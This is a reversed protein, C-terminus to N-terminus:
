EYEVIRFKTENRIFTKTITANVAEEKELDYAIVNQGEKLDEINILSGDALTVSTNELFCGAAPTRAIGVSATDLEEQVKNAVRFEEPKMTIAFNKANKLTRIQGVQRYGFVSASGSGVVSLVNMALPLYEQQTNVIKGEALDTVQTALLPVSVAVDVVGITTGLVVLVAAPIGVPAYVAAVGIIMLSGGTYMQYKQFQEKLIPTKYCAMDIKQTNSFASLGSNSTDSITDVLLSSALVKEVGTDVNMDFPVRGVGLEKATGSEYDKNCDVDFGYYCSSEGKPALPHVNWASFDQGALGKGVWGLSPMTQVRVKESSGSLRDSVYQGGDDGLSDDCDPYVSSIFYGEEKAKTYNCVVIKRGDASKELLSGRLNEKVNGGLSSILDEYSLVVGGTQTLEEVVEAPCGCFGDRDDDSCYYNGTIKSKKYDGVLYRPPVGRYGNTALSKYDVFKCSPADMDILKVPVPVEKEIKTTVSEATDANKVLENFQPIFWKYPVSGVLNNYGENNVGDACKDKAVCAEQWQWKETNSSEQTKMLDGLTCEKCNSKCASSSKKSLMLTSCTISNPGRLVGNVNTFGIKIKKWEEFPVGYLEGRMSDIFSNPLDTTGRSKSEGELNIINKIAIDELYVLKKEGHAYNVKYDAQMEKGAGGPIFNVEVGGDSFQPAPQKYRGTLVARNYGNCSPVDDVMQCFNDDQNFSNHVEGCGAMVLPDASVVVSTKNNMGDGIYGDGNWQNTEENWTAQKVMCTRAVDGQCTGGCNNDIDDVEETQGPHRCFAVDANDGVGDNDTDNFCLQRAYLDKDSITDDKLAKAWKATVSADRENDYPWDDCDSKEDEKKVGDLDYDLWPTNKSSEVPELDAVRITMNIQCFVSESNYNLQKGFGNGNSVPIEVAFSEFNQPTLSYTPMSNVELVEGSYSILSFKADVTGYKDEEKLQAAEVLNITIKGGCKVKIGEIWEDGLEGTIEEKSYSAFSAAINDSVCNPEYTPDLNRRHSICEISCEDPCCPDCYCGCMGSFANTNACDCQCENDKEPPICGTGWFDPWDVIGSFWPDGEYFGEYYRSSVNSPDCWESGNVKGDGCYGNFDISHESFGDVGFSVENGIISVNPKTYIIKGDKRITVESPSKGIAEDTYFTLRALSPLEPENGEVSFSRMIPSLDSNIFISKDSIKVSDKMSKGEWDINVLFEVKGFAKEVSFKSNSFNFSVDPLEKGESSFNYESFNYFKNNYSSLMTLGIYSASIKINSFTNDFVSNLVIGNMNDSFVFKDFVSHAVNELYLGNLSFDRITGNKVILSNKGIASIGSYPQNNGQINKGNLDFIVNDSTIEFCNGSDAVVDNQLLYYASADNLEQCGFIKEVNRREGNKCIQKGDDINQSNSNGCSGGLGLFGSNFVCWENLSNECEAQTCLNFIGSGCESCKRIQGPTYCKEPCCKESDSATLFKSDCSQSESCINGNQFSCNPLCEGNLCGTGSPCSTKGVLQENSCTAYDQTTICKKQGNVCSSKLIVSACEWNDGANTDIQNSPVGSNITCYFPGNNYYTVSRINDAGYGSNLARQICGDVGGGGQVSFAGGYGNAFCSGGSGVVEKIFDSPSLASVFGVLFLFLIVLVAKKM